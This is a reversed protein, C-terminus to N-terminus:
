SFRMSSGFVSKTKGNRGEEWYGNEIINKIINLYQTEEHIEKVSVINRNTNEKNTNEKNLINLNTNSFDEALHEM